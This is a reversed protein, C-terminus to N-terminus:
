RIFDYILFYFSHLAWNSTGLENTPGAAPCMGGDLLNEHEKPSDTRLEGRIPAM